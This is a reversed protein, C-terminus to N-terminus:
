LFTVHLNTNKFLIELKTFIPFFFHNVFLSKTKVFSDILQCSTSIDCPPKHGQGLNSM